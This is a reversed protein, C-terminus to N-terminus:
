NPIRVSVGHGHSRRAMHVGEPVNMFLSVQATEDECTAHGTWYFSEFRADTEGNPPM